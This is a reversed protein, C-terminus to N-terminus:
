GIGLVAVLRRMGGRIRLLADASYQLSLRFSGNTKGIESSFTRAANLLGGEM